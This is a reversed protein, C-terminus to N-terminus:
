RVTFGLNKLIGMAHLDGGATVLHAPFELRMPYDRRLQDFGQRREAAGLTFLQQM